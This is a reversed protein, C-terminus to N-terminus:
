GMPRSTARRDDQEDDIAKPKEVKKANLFIDGLKTIGQLVLHERRCKLDQRMGALLKKAENVDEEEILYQTM